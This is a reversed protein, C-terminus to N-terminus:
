CHLSVDSGNVNSRTGPSLRGLASASITSSRSGGLDGAALAPSFVELVSNM